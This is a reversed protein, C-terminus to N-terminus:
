LGGGRGAGGVQVMGVVCMNCMFAGSLARAFRRHCFSPQTHVSQHRNIHDFSLDLVYM